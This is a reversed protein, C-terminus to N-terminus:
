PTRKVKTKLHDYAWQVDPSNVEGGIEISRNSIQELNEIFGVVTDDVILVLENEPLSTIIKKLKNYGNPSLILDFSSKRRIVSNVIETMSSFEELGIVATNAICASTKLNRSRLVKQCNINKKGGDKMVMFIGISKEQPVGEAFLSFLFVLLCTRM